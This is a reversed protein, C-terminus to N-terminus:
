PRWRGGAARRKHLARGPPTHAKAQQGRPSGSLQPRDMADDISTQQEEVDSAEGWEGAAAGAPAPFARLLQAVEEVRDNLWSSISASSSPPSRSCTPRHCAAGARRCPDPSVAAARRPRAACAGPEACIPRALVDIPRTLSPAEAPTSDPAPGDSVRPSDQGGRSAPGAPGVAVATVHQFVGGAHHPTPPRHWQQSSPRVRVGARPSPDDGKPRVSVRWDDVRLRFM